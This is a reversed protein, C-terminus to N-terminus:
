KQSTIGHIIVALCHLQEPTLKKLNETIEAILAPDETDTTFFQAPTLSFYECINFFVALSPLAQRNEIHNIYGSNQGLSLSMDRASVGKQMRLDSLRKSFEREYVVDGGVIVNYLVIYPSIHYIFACKTLLISIYLM